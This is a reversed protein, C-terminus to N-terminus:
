VGRRWAEKGRLTDGFFNFEDKPRGSARTAQPRLALFYDTTLIFSKPDPNPLERYWLYTDDSWGKLFQRETLDSGVRDPYATGTIPDFGHRQAQCKNAFDKYSSGGCGLLFSILLIRLMDGPSQHSGGARAVHAWPRFAIM